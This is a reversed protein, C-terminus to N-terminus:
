NKAEMHTHMTKLCISLLACNKTSACTGHIHVNPWFFFPCRCWAQVLCHMKKRWIGHRIYSIHSSTWSGVSLYFAVNCVFFHHFHHRVGFTLNCHAQEIDLVYSNVGMFLSSHYSILNSFHLVCDLIKHTTWPGKVRTASAEQYWSGSSNQLHALDEASARM